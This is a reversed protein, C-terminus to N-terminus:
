ILHSSRPFNAAITSSADIDNGIRDRRTEAASTNRVRLIQRQIVLFDFLQLSRDHVFDHLHLATFGPSLESDFCVPSQIDRNVTSLDLSTPRNTPSRRETSVLHFICCYRRHAACPVQLCAILLQHLNVSAVFCLHLCSLILPLLSSPLPKLFNSLPLTPSFGKRRLPPEAVGRPWCCITRSM